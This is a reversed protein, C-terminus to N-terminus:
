SSTKFLYVDFQFTGSSGGHTVFPRDVAVRLLSPDVSKLIEWMKNDLAKWAPYAGNDDGAYLLVLGALHGPLGPWTTVTSRIANVASANNAMVDSPTITLTVTVYKFSLAPQPQGSKKPTPTVSPTVRPTPTPTPPPKAAPPTTGVTTALLFVLALALMLDAFLWGTGGFLSHGFDGRRARRRYRTAM